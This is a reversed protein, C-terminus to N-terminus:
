WWGNGGWSGSYGYYGGPGSFGYGGPGGFGYGGPFGFGYGGPAGFPSGLGYGGSSGTRFDSYKDLYTEWEEDTWDRWDEWSGLDDYYDELREQLEENFQAWEYDLYESYIGRFDAWQTDTWTDYAEWCDILQNDNNATDFCGYIDVFGAWTLETDTTEDDAAAEIFASFNTNFTEWDSNDYEDFKETIDEIFNELSEELRVEQLAERLV